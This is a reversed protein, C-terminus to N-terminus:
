AEYECASTEDVGADNSPSTLDGISITVDNAPTPLTTENDHTAEAFIWATLVM